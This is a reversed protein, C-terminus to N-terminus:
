RILEQQYKRNRLFATQIEESSFGLHTLLCIEVVKKLKNGLPYLAVGSAARGKLDEDHHILYNRTDLV